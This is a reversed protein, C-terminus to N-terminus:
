DPLVIFTDTIVIIETYIVVKTAFQVASKIAEIDQAMM